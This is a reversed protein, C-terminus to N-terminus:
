EMIEMLEMLEIVPNQMTSSNVRVDLVVFKKGNIEVIKGKQYTMDDEYEPWQFESTTEELWEIGYDNV